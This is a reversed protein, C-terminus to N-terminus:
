GDGGVEPKLRYLVRIGGKDTPEEALDFLGTALILGKLTKHGNKEQLAAIEGAADQKILQGAASLSVWGDPRAKKSAIDELLTVLPSMRSLSSILDERLEESTFFTALLKMINQFNSVDNKLLDMEPLIKEHQKDLYQDIEQCSEISHPNFKPLLHHVLDNRDDVISELAQKRNEYYTSDCEVRFALSIEAENQEVGNAISEDCELHTEDLYQGALMGMTQKYVKEARQELNERLENVSGGPV